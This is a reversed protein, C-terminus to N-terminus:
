TLLGGVWGRAFEVRSRSIDLGLGFNLMGRLALSILLRGNGSCFEIVRLRRTGCHYSIFGVQAETKKLLYRRYEDRAKSTPFNTTREYGEYGTKYFDPNWPVTSM